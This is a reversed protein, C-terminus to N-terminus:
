LLNEGPLFKMTLIKSKNESIALSFKTLLKM